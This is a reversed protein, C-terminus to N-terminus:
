DVQSTVVKHIGQDLQDCYRCHQDSANFFNDPYYVDAQVSVNCQRLMWPFAVDM